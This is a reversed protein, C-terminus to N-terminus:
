IELVEIKRTNADLETLRIEIRNKPLFDAPLYESWEIALTKSADAFLEALRELKEPPLVETRYLDFHILEGGGELSYIQEGVFTPSKVKKTVGLGAALGRILTTKGLGLDGFFFVKKGRLNKAIEWGFAETAEDSTTERTSNKSM